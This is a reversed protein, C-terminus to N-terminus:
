SQQSLQLTLKQVLLELEQVRKELSPKNSKQFSPTSTSPSQYTFGVIACADLVTLDKKDKTFSLKNQILHSVFCNIHFRQSLILTDLVDQYKFQPEIGHVKLAEFFKALVSSEKLALKSDTKTNYTYTM